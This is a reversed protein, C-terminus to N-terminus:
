YTYVVIIRTYSAAIGSSVSVAASGSTATIDSPRQLSGDGFVMLLRGNWENGLTYPGTGDVDFEQMGFNTGLFESLPARYMRPDGDLKVLAEDLATLARPALPANVNITM